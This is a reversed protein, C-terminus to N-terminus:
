RTELVTKMSQLITQLQSIKTQANANSKKITIPRSKFNAKEEKTFQPKKALELIENLLKNIFADPNVNINVQNLNRKLTQNFRAKNGKRTRRFKSGHKKIARRIRKCDEFAAITRLITEKIRANNPYELLNDIWQICLQYSYTIDNKAWLFEKALISQKHFFLKEAQTLLSYYDERYRNNYNNWRNSYRNSYTDNNSFSYLRHRRPMGGNQTNNRYAISANNTFDYTAYEETLYEDLALLVNKLSRLEKSNAPDVYGKWTDIQKNLYNNETTMGWKFFLKLLDTNYPPLFITTHLELPKYDGLDELMSSQVRFAQALKEKEVADALLPQNPDVGNSLLGEMCFLVDSASSSLNLKKYEMLYRHLLNGKMYSNIFFSIDKLKPGFTQIYFKLILFDAHYKKNTLFCSNKSGDGLFVKERVRPDQIADSIKKFVSYIELPKLNSYFIFQLITQEYYAKVTFDMKSGYKDIVFSLMAYLSKTATQINMRLMTAILTEERDIGGSYTFIKQENGQLNQIRRWFVEGKEPIPKSSVLLTYLESYLNRMVSKKNFELRTAEEEMYPNPITCTTKDICPTGDDSSINAYAYTLVSRDSSEAFPKFKEYLNEKTYKTTEREYLTEVFTKYIHELRAHCCKYLPNEKDIEDYPGKYGNLITRIDEEVGDYDCILNIRKHLLEKCSYIEGAHFHMFDQFGFFAVNQDQFFKYKPDTNYMYAKNSGYCAVILFITKPFYRSTKQLELAQKFRKEIYPDCQEVHGLYVVINCSLKDAIWQFDSKMKIHDPNTPDTMRMLMEEEFTAVLYNPIMDEKLNNLRYREWLQDFATQANYNARAEADNTNIFPVADPYYQAKAQGICKRLYEESPVTGYEKSISDVYLLVNPKPPLRAINAWSRKPQETAM